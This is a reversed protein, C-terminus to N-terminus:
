VAAHRLAETVTQRLITPTIGAKDLVARVGYARVDPMAAPLSSSCLIVPIGALDAHSQLTHLLQTGNAHPLLLDLVIVQPMKNDVADLAEQADHAHATTHGRLWTRYCDAM